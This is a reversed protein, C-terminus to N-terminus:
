LTVRPRAPSGTIHFSLGKGKFQKLMKSVSAPLRALFAANPRVHGTLDLRIKEPLSAPTITGALEINVEPGAARGEKLVLRNNEIQFPLTATSFTFTKIGPLAPIEQETKISCRSLIIKGDGEVPRNGTRPLALTLSGGADFSLLVDGAATGYHFGDVTVGDFRARMQRGAGPATEDEPLFFSFDVVGSATGGYLGADFALQPASGFLSSWVPQLTLRDLRLPPQDALKVAVAAGVIKLPPHLLLKEVSVTGAGLSRNVLDSFRGAMKEGPFLLYLFVFVAAVFYFLGAWISKRGM